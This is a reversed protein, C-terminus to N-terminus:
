GVVFPKSVRLTTRHPNTSARIRVAFVYSGPRLRRAPFRLRPKWHARILGTATAVATPATNATLRRITAMPAPLRYIAGYYTAEEAATVGFGWDRRMPSFVRM